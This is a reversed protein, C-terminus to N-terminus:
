QNGGILDRVAELLNYNNFSDKVIYRSAGLMVARKQDEENNRSSIVIVPIGSLEENKKLNETLMFGDMVPMNIDTCILDYRKVKAARLAESGDAATDVLYGETALIESEIERTARSDDVVLITKRLKEFEINRKKIDISKIRKAMRIVTPIHLVSMMEYDENLVIGSFVPIAKLYAPMTKLIVSRMSSINDVALAVVDDYSRIIVVFIAASVPASDAKIRLVQNLYYLKVMRGSYKVEPRDVVTVIEERSVLLITDVFNAPIVFKLGCCTIPLGMLAAISLPVMITFTTGNGINSNVVISGKLAEISDRVVNMGIGRGSISSLQNSTTFGNQFIINILDERSLSAAAAETVLGERLAKQKIADLDIGRGDDSIVIKMNGSERSCVISLKGTESKGIAVREEPTEIGHDLSNRVMHLFVESLSAIINKDIENEKGEISLQVKKGLEDSLNYVYRPYSDFITSLPLTRLSVVTDYASRISNGADVAYNKLSSNIRESLRELKRFNVTLLPDHKKDEKLTRSYDKILSGLAAYDVSISKATVELSQLSAISRIIGDIKELSLRISESKNDKHQKAAPEQSSHGTVEGHLPVSPQKDNAFQTEQKQIKQETFSQDSAGHFEPEIQSLSQSINGPISFEENTALFALNKIYEHIEIADAKTKRIIGFAYKLLDLTALVLKVANDSLGVRQEKIAIFVSELAHCLDEIRKFELMRSSGKLTHLSRLLAALDDEVSIDDKIDFILGEILTINEIGEDVYKDIYKEKNIAM